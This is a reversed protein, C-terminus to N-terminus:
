TLDVPDDSTGAGVIERWKVKTEIKLFVVEAEVRNGRRLAEDVPFKYMGLTGCNLSTGDELQRELIIVPDGTTAIPPKHVLEYAVGLQPIEEHTGWPHHPSSFILELWATSSTGSM